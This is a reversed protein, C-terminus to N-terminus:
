ARAHEVMSACRERTGIWYGTTNAHLLCPMLKRPRVSGNLGKGVNETVMWYGKVGKSAALDRARMVNASATPGTPNVAPDDAASPLELISELTLRLTPHLPELNRFDDCAGPTGRCIDVAWLRSSPM